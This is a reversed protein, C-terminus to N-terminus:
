PVSLNPKIKKEPWNVLKVLHTGHFAYCYGLEVFTVFICRWEVTRDSTSHRICGGAGREWDRMRAHRLGAGRRGQALSM